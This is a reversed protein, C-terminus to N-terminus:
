RRDGPQGVRLTVIQFPRLHGTVRTGAVEVPVVPITPNPEELFDTVTVSAPEFGFRLDLRARGGGSEYCRVILDGSGDDAPK